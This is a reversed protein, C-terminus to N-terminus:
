FWDSPPHARTRCSPAVSKDPDGGLGRRPDAWGYWLLGQCHCLWVARRSRSRQTTRAILRGRRFRGSRFLTLLEDTWLAAPREAPRSRQAGVATTCVTDGALRCLRLSTPLSPLGRGRRSPRKVAPFREARPAVPELLVPARAVSASPLPWDVPIRQQSRNERIAQRRALTHDASCGAPEVLCLAKRPSHLSGVRVIDRQTHTASNLTTGRKPTRRHPVRNPVDESAARLGRDPEAPIPQKNSHLTRPDFGHGGVQL